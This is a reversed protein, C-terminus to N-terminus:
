EIERLTEEVSRRRRRGDDADHQKPSSARDELAMGIRRKARAARNLQPQFTAFLVGGVSLAALLFTLLLTATPSM